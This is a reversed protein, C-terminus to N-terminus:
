AKQGVVLRYQGLGVGQLLRVYPSGLTRKVRRGNLLRLWSRDGAPIITRSERVHFGNNAILENLEIRGFWRGMRPEGRQEREQIWRFREYVFPNLTTMVLWGGPKLLRAMAQVAADQPSIYAIADVCLAADFSAPAASFRMFDSTFLKDAVAPCRKRALAIGEASIDLGTYDLERHLAETVWGAGIGIDLLSAQRGLGLSRVTALVASTLQRRDDGHAGEDQERNWKDWTAPPAVPPQRPGSASTGM